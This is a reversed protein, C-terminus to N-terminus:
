PWYMILVYLIYVINNDTKWIDLDLLILQFWKTAFRTTHLQAVDRDMFIVPMSVSM